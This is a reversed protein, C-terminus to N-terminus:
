HHFHKGKCRAVQDFSYINRRNFCFNSLVLFFIRFLYHISLSTLNTIFSALNRWDYKVIIKTVWIKSFSTFESINAAFNERLIRIRTLRKHCASSYAAANAALLPCGTCALISATLLMHMIMEQWWDSIFICQRSM